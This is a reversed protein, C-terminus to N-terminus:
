RRARFRARLAPSVAVIKRAAAKALTLLVTRKPPLIGVKTAVTVTARREKLFDGLVSEAEGYGYLRATDFHRIGADYARNLLRLSDARNLRSMLMSCGFGLRAPCNVGSIASSFASNEFASAVFSEM